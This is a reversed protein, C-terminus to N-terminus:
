LLGQDHGLLQQEVFTFENDEKIQKKVVEAMARSDPVFTQDIRTVYIDAIVKVELTAKIKAVIDAKAFLEAGNRQLRRRQGLGPDYFRGGPM